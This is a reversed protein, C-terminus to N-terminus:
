QGKFKDQLEQLAEGGEVENVEGLGIVLLCGCTCCPSRFNRARTTRLAVEGTAQLAEQVKDVGGKEKAFPDLRINSLRVCWPDRWRTGVNAPLHVTSGLWRPQRRRRAAKTEEDGCLDVSGAAEDSENKRQHPRYYGRSRRPRGGKKRWCSRFNGSSSFISCM